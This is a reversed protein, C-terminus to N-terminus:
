YIHFTCAANRLMVRGYHLHLDKLPHQLEGQPELAASLLRQRQGLGELTNRLPGSSYGPQIAATNIGTVFIARFIYSHDAIVRRLIDPDQGESIVGICPMPNDGYHQFWDALASDFTREESAVAFCGEIPGAQNTANEIVNFQQTYM